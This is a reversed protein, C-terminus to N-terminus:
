TESYVTFTSGNANATGVNVRLFRIYETPSIHVIDKADGAVTINSEAATGSSLLKYSITEWNTGDLSGQITFVVNNTAGNVVYISNRSFGEVNAYDSGGTATTLAAHTTNDTLTRTVAVVNPSLTKRTGGSTPALQSAM